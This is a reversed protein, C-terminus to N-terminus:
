WAAASHRRRRDGGKRLRDDAFRRPRPRRADGYLQRFFRRGALLHVGCPSMSAPRAPPTAQAKAREVVASVRKEADAQALGPQAAVLKAVYTRDDAPFDRAAADM